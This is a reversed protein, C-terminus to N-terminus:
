YFSSHVVKSSINARAHAVSNLKIDTNSMRVPPSHIEVNNDPFDHCHQRLAHENPLFRRNGLYVVKDLGAM